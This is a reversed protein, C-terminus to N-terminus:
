IGQERGDMEKRNLPNEIEDQKLFCNFHEVVDPNVRFFDIVLFLDDKDVISHTDDLGLKQQKRIHPELFRIGFEKTNIRRM